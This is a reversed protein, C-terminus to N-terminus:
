HPPQCRPDPAQRPDERPRLPLRTPRGAVPTSPNGLLETLDQSEALLQRMPVAHMNVTRAANRYARVRFPNAGQIALLDAVQNLVTAIELNEVGTNDGIATAVGGRVRVQGSRLRRGRGRRPELPRLSEM